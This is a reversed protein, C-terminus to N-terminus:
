PARIVPENHVLAASEPQEDGEYDDGWLVKVHDDWVEIATSFDSAEVYFAVSDYHILYLNM